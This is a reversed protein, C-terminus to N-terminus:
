SEAKKRSKTYIYADMKDLTEEVFHAAASAILEPHLNPQENLLKIMNVRVRMALKSNKNVRARGSQRKTAMM